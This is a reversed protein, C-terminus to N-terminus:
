HHNSTTVTSGPRTASAFILSVAASVAFAVLWQSQNYNTESSQNGSMLDHAADGMDLPGSGAGILCFVTTLSMATLLGPRSMFLFGFAEGLSAMLLPAGQFRRGQPDRFVRNNSDTDDNSTLNFVLRGAFTLALAIVGALILDIVISIVNWGTNM